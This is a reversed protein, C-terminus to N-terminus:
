LNTVDEQPEQVVIKEIKYEAANAQTANTDTSKEPRSNDPTQTGTLTVKSDKQELELGLVVWDSTITEMTRDGELIVCTKYYDQSAEM